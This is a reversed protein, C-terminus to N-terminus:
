SNYICEAFIIHVYLLIHYYYTAGKIYTHTRCIYEVIERIAVIQYLISVPIENKNHFGSSNKVEYLKTSWLYLYSLVSSLVSINNSQYQQVFSFRNIANNRADSLAFLATCRTQEFTVLSIIINADHLLNKRCTYTHLLRMCKVCWKINCYESM